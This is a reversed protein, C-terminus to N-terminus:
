NSVNLSRTRTPMALRDPTLRDLRDEDRQPLHGLSILFEVLNDGDQFVYSIIISNGYYQQREAAWKPCFLLLHKFTEKGEV